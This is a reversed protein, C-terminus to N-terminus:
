AATVDQARQDRGASFEDAGAGAGDRVMPFLGRMLSEAHAGYRQLMASLRALEV